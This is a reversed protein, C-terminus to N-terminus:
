PKGESKNAAEIEAVIQKIDVTVNKSPLEALKEFAAQDLACLPHSFNRACITRRLSDARYIKNFETLSKLAETQEANPDGKPNIVDNLELMSTYRIGLDRWYIPRLGIEQATLGIAVAPADSLFNGGNGGILCDEPKVGQQGSHDDAMVTAIKASSVKDQVSELTLSDLKPAEPVVKVGAARTQSIQRNQSAAEDRCLSLMHSLGNAAKLAKANLEVYSNLESMYIPAAGAKSPAPVPLESSQRDFFAEIYDGTRSVVDIDLFYAALARSYRQADLGMAGPEQDLSSYPVIGVKVAKPTSAAESTLASVTRKLGALDYAIEGGSGGYRYLTIQTSDQTSIAKQRQEFSGSVSFINAINAELGGKIQALSDSNAKSFTLFSDLAAGSVVVGIFGQGCKSVNGKDKEDKFTITRVSGYKEALDSDGTRPISGGAKYDISPAAFLASNTVTASLWFKTSDTSFKEDSLYSLRATAQLIAMKMAGSASINTVSEVETHSNVEELKYRVEQSPDQIPVFDVCTGYTPRDELLSYGQGLVVGEDPYDLWVISEKAAAGQGCALLAAFAFICFSASKM